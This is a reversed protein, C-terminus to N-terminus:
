IQKFPIAKNKSLSAKGTDYEVIDLYNEYVEQLALFYKPDVIFADQQSNKVISTYGHLKADNIVSTTKHRLDTISYTNMYIHMNTYM